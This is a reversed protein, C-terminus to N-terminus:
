LAMCLQDHAHLYSCPGLAAATAALLLQLPTPLLRLPAAAPALTCAQINVPMVWLNPQAHLRFQRMVQLITLGIM